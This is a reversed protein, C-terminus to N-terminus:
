RAVEAYEHQGIAEASGYSGNPTFLYRITGSRPNWSLFCCPGVARHKNFPGSFYFQGNAVLQFPEM